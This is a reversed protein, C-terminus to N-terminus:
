CSNCIVNVKYIDYLGAGGPVLYRYKPKYGLLGDTMAEVVPNLDFCATPGARQIHRLQDEIYERGYTQKVGDDATEWM